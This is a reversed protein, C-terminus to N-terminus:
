LIRSLGLALLLSAVIMSAFVLPPLLTFFTVALLKESRRAVRHVSPPCHVLHHHRHMVAGM